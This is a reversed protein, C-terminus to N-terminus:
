SGSALEGQVLDPECRRDHTSTKKPCDPLLFTISLPTFDARMNASSATLQTRGHNALSIQWVCAVKLPSFINNKKVFEAECSSHFFGTNKWKPFQRQTWQSSVSWIRMFGLTYFFPGKEWYWFTPQKFRCLWLSNFNLILNLTLM